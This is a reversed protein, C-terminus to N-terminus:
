RHLENVLTMIPLETEVMPSPAKAPQLESVCISMGSETEDM